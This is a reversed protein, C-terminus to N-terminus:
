LGKGLFAYGVVDHEAAVAGLVGGAVAVDEFLDELFDYCFEFVLRLAAERGFM